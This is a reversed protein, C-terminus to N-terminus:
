QIERLWRALAETTAPETSYVSGVEHYIYANRDTSAPVVLSVGVTPRMWQIHIGGESDTSACGQPIARGNLASAIAADTLLHCAVDFAHRSARLTGYEDSEEENRLDVLQRIIASLYRINASALRLREPPISEPTTRDDGTSASAPKPQSRAARSLALRWELDSFEPGCVKSVVSPM